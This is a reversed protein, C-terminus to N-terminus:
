EVRVTDLLKFDGRQKDPRILAMKDRFAMVITEVGRRPELIDHEGKARLLVYELPLGMLQLAKDFQFLYYRSDGNLSVRAIVEGSAPLMGELLGKAKPLLMLRQGLVKNRSLRTGFNWMRLWTWEGQVMDINSLNLVVFFMLFSGMGMSMLLSHNGIGTGYVLSLGLFEFLLVLVLGITLFIALEQSDLLHRGRFVESQNLANNIYAAYQFTAYVFFVVSMLSFLSVTPSILWFDYFGHMFAALLFFPVVLLWQSKGYRYRALMMGYAVTSTAFMHFVNCVLVRGHIIGIHGADFYMLNEVFAFGLASASAYLLYSIPRRVVKTFQLLLLFPIFKVLEEIVGIGFVCYFLDQWFDGRESRYFGLDWHLFDYLVTALFSFIAGGVFVAVLPAWSEKRLTDLRRLFAMWVVTGLLGGILGIWQVGSWWGAVQAAMYPGLAGQRTYLYRKVLAPVHEGSLPDEVIGAIAELSDGRQNYYMMALSATALNGANGGLAMERRLHQEAADLERRAAHIRGMFLNRYPLDHNKIHRFQVMAIDTSYEYYECMGIGLYALDKLYPDREFQMRSYTLIPQEVETDVFVEGDETWGERGYHAALYEFHYDVIYPYALSLTKYAEAALTPIHRLRAFEAQDHANSTFPTPVLLNALGFLGAVLLGLRVLSQRWAFRLFGVSRDSRRQFQWALAMIGVCVVFLLITLSLIAQSYAVWEAHSGQGAYLPLMATLGLSLLLLKRM